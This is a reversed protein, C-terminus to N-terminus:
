KRGQSNSEIDTLISIGQQLQADTIGPVQRLLDKSSRTSVWGANDMMNKFLMQYKDQPINKKLWAQVMQAQVPNNGFKTMAHNVISIQMEMSGAAVGENSIYLRAARDMTQTVEDQLSRYDGVAEQSIRFYDAQARPRFGLSTAIAEAGNTEPDLVNRYKDYTKGTQYMTWADMGASIGSFIRAAETAAAMATVPNTDDRELLGAETGFYRLMTGMATQVRGGNKLYMQGAPSNAVLGWPGETMATFMLKGIQDMEPYPSLSALNIDIDQNDLLERIAWNFSWDELGNVLIDRANPNDPLVDGGLLTSLTKTPTGWLLMDGILIRAKTASDLRRNFPMLATKHPALMFQMAMAPTTQNYVMDGAVNMDGKIANIESVAMDKIVPNSLDMGKRKFREYVAAAHFLVNGKEGIDYGVQRVNTVIAGATKGLINSAESADLLTGKILIQKDVAALLGTSELFKTFDNNRTGQYTDTLFEGWLKFIEGNLMGKPNYFGARVGQHAQVIWQRIPNSVVTAAFVSGKVVSTLGIDAASLAAREAKSWGKRGFSDAMTNFLAKVTQDAANVYGNEMSRIFEYETRADGAEKTTMRGKAGIESFSNPFRVGGIGDSPLFEKRNALFRSKAAEIVPRMITRGAISRAAHIASDVPSVVYNGDGLHNLGDASELLKGRHRQAIRGVASHVDFWDDSGRRMARDDARVAPYTFTPNEEQKRLRFREAEETDGAIAIARKTGDPHIEDVFRPAKYQIQYYGDRYNLLSDTDRISRTYEDATNRIVVHETSSGGFEAPRALKGYYGGAEYLDKEAVPSLKIVSDTLSDYASAVSTNAKLPKVILSTDAREFLEFGRSQMTRTFDLNEFYFHADWFKRWEQVADIGDMSMGQSALYSTDLKLGQDNAEQIYKNVRIQDASALKTFKDSYKAASDLLMKEFAAAKDAAVIFSGSYVPNVMSAADLMWRSASGKDDWMLLNGLRDLYNRKVDMMEWNTIDSPNIESDQKVHVLYNGEIGRVDDLKVPVHDLGRKELVTIEDDRVGMRRLASKVQAVAQEPNAFSGEPAGYVVGIRATTGYGEHTSSVATIGTAEQFKNLRHSVAAAREAATYQLGGSTLAAELMEPPINMEDRLNRQIDIAQSRVAGSETILQPMIDSALAETRTTGYVAQALEDNKSNFVATFLARAQEPNGQQLIAAPSAPNRTYMLGNYEIRKVLDAIPTLAGPSDVRVAKLQKIEKEIAAIRQAASSAETNRAIEQELRTIQSNAAVNTEDLMQTAKANAAKFSLRETAQLEKAASKVAEKTVPTLREKLTAIEKQLSSVVGRDLQNGAPGLLDSKEAELASVMKDQQGAINSRLEADNRPRVGDPVQRSMVKDYESLSEAENVVTKVDGAGQLVKGSSRLSRALFGMGVLDIVNATNDLVKDVTSYGGNVLNQAMTMQQFQNEGSFIVSGNEQIATLMKPLAQVRAEAPLRTYNDVAAKMASGPLLFSKWKEWTSASEPLMGKATGGVVKATAGPAFISAATDLITTANKWDKSMVYANAIAQEQAIAVDVAYLNDALNLRAKESGVSEGKSPKILSNNLLIASTDVPKNYNKVVANKQEFPIDPNSLVDTLAKFDKEKSQAVVSSQLQQTLQDGGQQGEAMMMSFNEIVKEPTSSLLSTISARNRTAAIPMIPQTAAQESFIDLESGDSAPQNMTDIIDM